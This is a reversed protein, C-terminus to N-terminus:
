PKWQVFSSGSALLGLLKSLTGRPNARTLSINLFYQNRVLVLGWSLRPISLFYLLHYRKWYKIKLMCTFKGPIQSSLMLFAPPHPNATGRVCYCSPDKHYINQTQITTTVFNCLVWYVPLHTFVLLPFTFSTFNSYPTHISKRTTIQVITIFSTVVPPLQPFPIRSRETSNRCGWAWRCPDWFKLNKLFGSESKPPM